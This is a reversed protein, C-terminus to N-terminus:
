FEIWEICEESPSIIAIQKSHVEGPALVFEGKHYKEKAICVATEADNAEVEFEDVVTEEIAITYKKM